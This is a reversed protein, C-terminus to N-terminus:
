KNIYSKGPSPYSKKSTLVQKIEIPTLITIYKKYNDVEIEEANLSALNVKRTGGPVNLQVIPWDSRKLGPIKLIVKDESIRHMDPNLLVEINKFKTPKADSDYGHIEMEITWTPSYFGGISSTLQKLPSLMIIALVIMYAAFAGSANWTLAGITGSAKIQTTPFIKYILIAPLLPLAVVLILILASIVALAIEVALDTNEM